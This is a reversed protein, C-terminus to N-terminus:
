IRMCNNKMFEFFDGNEIYELVMFIKDADEFVSEVKLINPHDLNQLIENELYVQYL